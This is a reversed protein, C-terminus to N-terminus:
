PPRPRPNPLGGGPRRFPKQYLVPSRCLCAGRALPPLAVFHRPSEDALGAQRKWRPSEDQPRPPIPLLIGGGGLPPGGGKLLPPKHLVPGRFLCAGAWGPTEM